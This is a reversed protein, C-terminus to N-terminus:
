LLTMLGSSIVKNFIKKSFVTQFSLDVNFSKLANKFMPQIFSYFNKQIRLQLCKVEVTRKSCLLGCLIM